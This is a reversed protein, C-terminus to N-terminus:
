KIYVVINGGTLTDLVFGEVWGVENSRIPALDAEGTPQFVIKGNRDKITATSAQAPYDQFIIQKVFVNSPWLIANPQGFAVPIDLRWQRSSLDNM